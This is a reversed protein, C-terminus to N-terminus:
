KFCWKGIIIIILIFTIRFSIQMERTHCNMQPKKFSLVLYIATTSNSAKSCRKAESSAKKASRGGRLCFNLEMDDKQARRARATKQIEKLSRLIARDEEGSGM